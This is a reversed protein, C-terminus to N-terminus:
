ALLNRALVDLSALDLWAPPEAWAAAGSDHRLAAVAVALGGNESRSQRPQAPAEDAPRTVHLSVGAVPGM